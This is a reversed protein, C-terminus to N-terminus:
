LKYSAGIGLHIQGPRLSISDEIDINTFSQIVKMYSLISLRSSLNYEISLSGTVDIGNLSYISTLNNYEIIEGTKDLNYGQSNQGISYRGGLGTYIYLNNRKLTLYYLSLGISHSRFTNYTKFNRRRGTMGSIDNKIDRQDGSYANVAIHTIVNDQFYAISDASQFDFFQVAFNHDYALNIAWKEKKYTYGLSIHYGNIWKSYNNRADVGKYEGFSLLTGGGVLLSHTAATNPEFKKPLSNQLKKDDLDLNLTQTPMLIRRSIFPVIIQDKVDTTTPAISVVEENNKTVNLDSTTREKFKSPQYPLDSSLISKRQNITQDNNTDSVQKDIYVPRGKEINIESVTKEIPHSLITNETTITTKKSTSEKKIRSNTKAIHQLSGTIKSNGPSIIFAIIIAIAIITLAGFFWWFVRKKKTEKPEMKAYIAGKNDEWSFGEPIQPMDENYLANIKKDISDM